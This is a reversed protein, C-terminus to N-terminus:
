PAGDGEVARAPGGHKEGVAEVHDRGVRRGIRFRGHTSAALDAALEADDADEVSETVVIFDDDAEADHRLLSEVRRRIEPADRCREDLFRSREAPALEAADMFLADILNPEDTSM